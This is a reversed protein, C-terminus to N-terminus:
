FFFASTVQWLRSRAGDFPLWSHVRLCHKLDRVKGTQAIREVEDASKSHAQSKRRSGLFSGTGLSRRGVSTRGPSVPVSGAAPSIQDWDVCPQFPFRKSPSAPSASRRGNKEQNEQLTSEHNNAQNETDGPGPGSYSVVEGTMIQNQLRSMVKNFPLPFAYFARLVALDRLLSFEVTM